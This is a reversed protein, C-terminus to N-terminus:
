QYANGSVTQGAPVVGDTPPTSVSIECTANTLPHCELGETESLETTWIFKPGTGPNEVRIAYYTTNGSKAEAPTVTAETTKSNDAKGKANASTLALLGMGFIFIVKKM